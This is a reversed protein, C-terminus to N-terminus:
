KMAISPKGYIDIGPIYRGTSHRDMWNQFLTKNLFYKDM